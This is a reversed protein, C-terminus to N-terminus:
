LEDHRADDSLQASMGGDRRGEGYVSHQQRVASAEYAREKAEGGNGKGQEGGTM